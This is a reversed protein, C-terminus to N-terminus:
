CLHTVYTYVIHLERVYIRLICSYTGYLTFEKLLISVMDNKM